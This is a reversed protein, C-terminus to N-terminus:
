SILSKTKLLEGGRRLPTTLNEEPAETEKEKRGEKHGYGRLCRRQYMKESVNEESVSVNGRICRRQNLRTQVYGWLRSGLVPRGLRRSGYIRSRYGRRYM